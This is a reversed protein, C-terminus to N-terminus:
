GAVSCMRRLGEELSITPTFGTLNLLKRADCINPTLSDPTLGRKTFNHLFDHRFTVMRPSVGFMAAPMGGSSMRSETPMSCMSSM